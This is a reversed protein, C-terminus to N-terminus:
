ATARARAGSLKSGQPWVLTQLTKVARTRRKLSLRPDRAMALHAYGVVRKPTMTGGPHAGLNRPLYYFYDGANKELARQEIQAAKSAKLELAVVRSSSPAPAAFLGQLDANEVLNKIGEEEAKLRAAEEAEAREKAKEAKAAAVEEANRPAAKQAAKQTQQPTTPKKSDTAPRETTARQPRNPRPSEM